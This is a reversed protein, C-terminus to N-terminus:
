SWSSVKVISSVIIESNDTESTKIAAKMNGFNGFSGVWFQWLCEKWDAARTNNIFFRDTCWVPHDRQIILPSLKPLASYSSRIQDVSSVLMPLREPLHRQSDFVEYAIPPPTSLNAPVLFVLPTASLLRAINLYSNPSRGNNEHLLHVSIGSLSLHEKQSRIERLLSKHAPSGFVRTTTMLLSLPGTKFSNPLFQFPAANWVM